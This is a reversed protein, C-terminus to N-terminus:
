KKINQFQESNITGKATFTESKFFTIIGKGNGSKISSKSYGLLEFEEEKDNELLSTELLTIIDAKRLKVDTKIDEFHSKHIQM